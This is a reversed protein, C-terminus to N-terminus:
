GYRAADRRKPQSLLGRFRLPKEFFALAIELPEAGEDVV